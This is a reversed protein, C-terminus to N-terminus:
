LAPVIISLTLLPHRFGGLMDNQACRLIERKLKVRDPFGFLSEESGHFYATRSNFVFSNLGRALKWACHRASPGHFRRESHCAFRGTVGHSPLFGLIISNCFPSM